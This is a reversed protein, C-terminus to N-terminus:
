HMHGESELNEPVYYTIGNIDIEQRRVERVFDERSARLTAGSGEETCNALTFSWEPPSGNNAAVRTIVINTKAVDALDCIKM